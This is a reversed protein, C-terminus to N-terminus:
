MSSDLPLRYAKSNLEVKTFHGFTSLYTSLMPTEAIIQIAFIHLNLDYVFCTHEITKAMF